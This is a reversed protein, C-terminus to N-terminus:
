QKRKVWGGECLHWEDHRPDQYRYPGHLNRPCTRVQADCTSWAAHAVLHKLRRLPQSCVTCYQPDDM